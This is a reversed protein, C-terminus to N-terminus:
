EPSLHRAKEEDRVADDGNGLAQHVEARLRYAEPDYPDLSVAIDLQQLARRLDGLRLYALGMCWRGLACEEAAIARQLDALGEKWDGLLVRAAGRLVLGAPEDPAHKLGQNADRLAEEWEDLELLLTGREFLAEYDEPDAEIARTFADIAEELWGESTLYVGESFPDDFQMRPPRAAKAKKKRHPTPRSSRGEGPRHPHEHPMWTTPDHRFYRALVDYLQPHSAKMDHPREFFCETAVAFFEVRDSAGYHDLLTAEDRRVQGVLQLFHVETVRYWDRLQEANSMPPAGSMDGDLGDLHHAFEHLIVNTHNSREPHLISSWALLVPGRHWAEGLKATGVEGGFVPDTSWHNAQDATLYFPRPYIIIDTLRDFYYPEDLGLTLLAAGGGIAVKMEDTVVFGNGGTWQREHFMVLAVNEVRERLEAPLHRYQWMREHLIQQWQRPFGNALWQSRDRPRKGFFM